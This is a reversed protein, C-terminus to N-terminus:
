NVRILAILMLYCSFKAYASELCYPSKLNKPNSPRASLVSLINLIDLIM